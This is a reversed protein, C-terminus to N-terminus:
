LFHHLFGHPYRSYPHKLSLLILDWPKSGPAHMVYELFPLLALTAIGPQALLLVITSSTLSSIPLLDPLPKCVMTLVNYPNVQLLCLWQLTKLLPTLYYSKPKFIIVLSLQNFNKLSGLCFCLPWNHSQKLWRLSFDHHIFWSPLWPHPLFHTSESFRWFPFAFHHGSLNFM